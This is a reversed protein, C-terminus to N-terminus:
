LGDEVGKLVYIVTSYDDELGEEIDVKRYGGSEFQLKPFLAEFTLTPIVGLLEGYNTYVVGRMDDKYLPQPKDTCFYYGTGPENRFVHLKM